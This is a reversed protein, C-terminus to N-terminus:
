VSPVWRKLIIMPRVTRFVTQRIFTLKADLQDNPTWLLGLRVGDKETYNVDEGQGPGPALNDIWGAQETDYVVIRAALTNEVLPVNLMGRLSHGTDGHSVSSFGLDILGETKELDPASSILRITGALSGSGYLTGQPGRLVELRQLDFPELDPNYLVASIPIEDFYVGVTESARINDRRVEGSNIGRINLQSRGNGQNAVALGPVKFAYEALSNIGSNRLDDQSVASITVPIGQVSEVRKSATVIIEELVAENAELM